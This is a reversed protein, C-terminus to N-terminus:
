MGRSVDSIFKWCNVDPVRVKVTASCVAAKSAYMWCSLYRLLWRPSYASRPPTNLGNTFRMSKLRM